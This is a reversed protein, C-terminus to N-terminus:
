EDDENMLKKLTEPTFSRMGLKNTLFEIIEQGLAKTFLDALQYKTNVFYLEFVGQEVQEKIFYYRIDIHKSRSHQVNNCCLAIASKNDCYMLIKNFVLGYDSLQSRIWLIQACCGSLAIYEAETSVDIHKTHTHQVPNCSIAIASTSDCYIPVKDYFFGYDILQTRMWLVQACCGSVAVYESESGAHDADSYATLDFGLDKPYWLGLIITGKLYRFIRKVSSVHHENPNAQYRACMCTAFMIDPRSSTVYMLSGIMSHYDTHDVLKGVLDLKLKAQKVMPTPIITAPTMEQLTPGSSSQESAMATLEDFDVHITEVIRRTRRNYIRFAKKTPAYGIFIGIDAKPQLKGVNEGDNTPYCLAGFVHFYSLEPQKVHMLEYPTKGHRLRIISRNKFRTFQNLEEQMASVWDADRLAEAVNAPEISSLLCSFLCSNALQGRTRVSSKPDSIIKHLPHDKTWKNEHPYPQYFTQVNSPDHFSTSADFYADELCENFVNHSTTAEDGNPIMNIPISEHFVEENILTEVNTTSSKMITAGRPRAIRNAFAAVCVSTASLSSSHDELNRHDMEKGGVVHNAENSRYVFDGLRFTVGQVRANYYDTMKLKTNAERIAARERREELLDLNLWLVEDNHVADVIATRYTPMGIEVPIVAESQWLNKGRSEGRDVKYFLGYRSDFIHGKMTWKLIVDRADRHMTPWYYGLWMAKAVMSRPGVHMSCLGEHIERIVYDAQLPRVYRLWPKLFSRRCLVGELLEYQRAKIHLKSEEKRDDPLTGNRPVKSISFNAFSIVPNKTKELYKIMNKEKAVYTGLVQNAVLKSDVSGYVNRVGMRAAIWLSAILAEYESGDVCSSGDTFLSWSEQPTEVVPTDPPAEDPKEVLFNTLIQGKMSTRPRYTINHEGLM